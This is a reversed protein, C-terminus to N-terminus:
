DTVLPDHAAVASGIVVDDRYFVVTQGPAIRSHPEVWRVGLEDVTAQAVRGHASTQVIIVGGAPDGHWCVDEVPMRDALLDRQHGVTVTATAVDVDLAYHPQGQGAVGLAKRQGVTVLEVADISGMLTGASDVVRGPTLTVRQELFSRRGGNTHSIFCVDQSDPKTATRLGLDAAITRVDDKTMAGLPFRLRSLQETSLMHLVYSQDKLADHGRAVLLRGGLEAIRAHHGTAVLPFGLATARRLLKDFKLHRNCEVCPNPTRGQRHAEVYPAVVQAEFEDGFNFVHHPVGLQDAVRRADDVDSVSCCGTDQAGGWLKMTVGTVEYGDRQLLAAAVSSDVGGSMAVLIPGRSAPSNM